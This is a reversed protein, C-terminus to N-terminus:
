RQGQPHQRAPPAAFIAEAPMGPHLLANPDQVDVRVRFVLRARQEATQVNKPTFEASTAVHRVKGRFVQGPYADVHVEVPAGLKAEGLRGEPVYVDVYPSALNGLVLLPEGPRAVEGPEVLRHMVVANLPAELERDELQDDIMSTAAIAEDRNAAAASIDEARAGGVLKELVARQERMQAEAVDAAARSEDLQQQTIVRKAFLGKARQFDRTTSRARAQAAELSQRAATIDEKRNGAELLQLRANAAEVAAQAQARRAELEQVDIRLLLQGQKVADDEDVLVETIRGGIRSAIDVETAEISGWAHLRRDGGRHCAALLVLLLPTWRARM